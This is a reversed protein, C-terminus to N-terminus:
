RKDGLVSLVEEYNVHLSRRKDGPAVFEARRIKGSKILDMIKAVSINYKKPFESVPIYKERLIELPLKEESM